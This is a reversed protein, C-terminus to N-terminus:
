YELQEFIMKSVKGTKRHYEISTCKFKILNFNKLFQNMDHNNIEEMTYTKEVTIMKLEIKISDKNNDIYYGKEDKEVGNKENENIAKNMLSTVDTGYIEKGLYYEYEKNGKHVAETTTKLNMALGIASILMILIPIFILLILKKM